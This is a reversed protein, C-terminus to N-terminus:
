VKGELTGKREQRYGKVGIIVFKYPGYIDATELVLLTNFGCIVVMRQYGLERERAPLFREV